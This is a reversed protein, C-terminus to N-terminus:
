ARVTLDLLDNYGYGTNIMIFISETTDDYYYDGPALDDLSLGLEADANTFFRFSRTSQDTGDGFILLGNENITVSDFIPDALVGVTLTQTELETAIEVNPGAAVKLVTDTLATLNDQGDVAIAKFAGIYQVLASGDQGDAVTFEYDFKLNEIDVATIADQGGQDTNVLTLTLPPGQEGEEGQEGAVGQPGVVGQPGQEGAVGDVGNVGDTGDRGPAGDTGPTGDVGDRGPAGPAGDTGDVGDRGPAGPAGDTGDVGNVGDIGNVGPEGNVGNTGAPGQAGEGGPAGQAGPDGQPGVIPGVNNWAAESLNWFWLDGGGETVIWSHGAFDNIDAPAAPLDAILAKTGQLTVSVGQAGTDGKDGQAGPAGQAGTSGPTGQEGTDGKAGNTGDQGNTGDAGNAGPAGDVGDRGNTGNDGPAGDVGDRGNIGNAGAAGPAGDLGNIGNAGNAGPAGTPGILLSAQATIVGNTITITTGDIRVGGKVTPSATPLEYAQPVNTLNDYDLYFTGDFGNLTAADTGGDAFEGSPLGVNSSVWKSGTYKLVQGIQPVTSLLDVDTLDNLAAPIDPLNTLKDYDGDFTSILTGNVTTGEPLDVPDSGTFDVSFIIAQEVSDFVPDTEIKLGNGAIFRMTDLGVAILDDQGEVRWTKFTSNMKVIVAGDGGDVLDFGSDTDFRIATVETVTNSLVGQSDILSAAISGGGLSLPQWHENTNPLVGTATNRSEGALVRYQYYSNSEFVVDLETYGATLFVLMGDQLRTGSINSLRDGSQGTVLRLGGRMETDLVIPHKGSPSWTGPWRNVTLGNYETSM